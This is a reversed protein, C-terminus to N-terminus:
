LENEQPFVKKAAAEKLAAAKVAAEKVAAEKVAVKKAAAKKSSTKKPLAADTAAEKKESLVASGRALFDVLNSRFKVVKERKIEDYMEVATNGTAAMAELHKVLMKDFIKAKYLANIYDSISPRKKSPLKNNVECMRRLKEELVARFLVAAASYHKKKILHEGQEILNASAEALVLDELETLRGKEINEAISELAGLMLEVKMTSNVAEIENLTKKWPKSFSGLQKVLLRCSACWKSFPQLPVFEETSFTGFEVGFKFILLNKGEQILQQVFESINEKSKQM